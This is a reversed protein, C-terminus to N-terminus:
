GVRIWSFAIGKAKSPFSRRARALVPDPFVAAYATGTMCRMREELCTLVVCIQATTNVLSKNGEDCWNLISNIVKTAATVDGFM